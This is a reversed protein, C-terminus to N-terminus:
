HNSLQGRARTAMEEQGQVADNLPRVESLMKELSNAILTAGSVLDATRRVLPNDFANSGVAHGGQLAQKAAEFSTELSCAQLEKIMAAVWELHKVAVFFATAAECARGETANM